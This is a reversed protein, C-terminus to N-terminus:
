LGKVANAGVRGRSTQRNLPFRQRSGFALKLVIATGVTILYTKPTRADQESEKIALLISASRFLRQVEHTRSGSYGFQPFEIWVVLKQM